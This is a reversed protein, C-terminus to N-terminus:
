PRVDHLIYEPLQVVTFPSCSQWLASNKIRIAKTDLSTTGNQLDDHIETVLLM